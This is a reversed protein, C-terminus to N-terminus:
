ATGPIFMCPYVCVNEGYAFMKSLQYM